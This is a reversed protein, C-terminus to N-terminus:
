LLFNVGTAEAPPLKIEGSSVTSIELEDILNNSFKLERVVRNSSNM